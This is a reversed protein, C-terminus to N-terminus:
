PLRDVLDALLDALEQAEGAGDALMASVVFGGRLAEVQITAVEQGDVVTVIRQAIVDDADLSVQLDEATRTASVGDATITFTECQERMQTFADRDWASVGDDALTVFVGQTPVGATSVQATAYDRREMGELLLTRCIEPEIRSAERLEALGREANAAIDSAPLIVLEEGRFTLGELYHDLPADGGTQIPAPEGDGDGDPTSGEPAPVNSTPTQEPAQEPTSGGTCSSLILSLALAPAAAWRRPSWPHRTTKM